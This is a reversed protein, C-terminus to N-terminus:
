PKHFLWWNLNDLGTTRKWFFGNDVLILDPYNDLWLSGYDRKFLLDDKGRYTKVEPTPSFYELSLIYRASVRYIEAYASDIEEPSIHILVGSTFVLDISHDDFPLNSAAADFIHNNPLVADEVLRNRAKQNPEVAFLQADTLRNLARLNIGINAGVELISSPSMDPMKKLIQEFAHAVSNIYETTAENRDTYADGFTGRWISLHKERQAVPKKGKM